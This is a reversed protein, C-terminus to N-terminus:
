TRCLLSEVPGGRLSEDVGGMSEPLMAACVAVATRSGGGAAAIQVLAGSTPHAKKLLMNASPIGTRAFSKECDQSSPGRMNGELYALGPCRSCSGAHNCGSCVPLDRLTISRVENLQASYRWIDMFKQRRVNGSPWPFQVCPFVDGYPSIYCATHGASCPLGDLVEGSVAKPPACLADVDGVLDPNHFVDRLQPMGLGLRLVARNGDMMPTITPDITYEAGLEKALAQVGPSDDLNPMMLVNAIKVKVGCSLLRRIGALSKTLSGPLLTIADHVEPRHSYISVQVDQVALDRLRRAEKDGLMFANTKVKVCFMLSRAYEVIDFFDMRMFVEGGSLTLFFVGAEVLQDLLGRIEGTTMEGHDHHDLYCHICRENCRYTVDLQVSLPVGRDLARQGIEEMLSMARRREGANSSTIRGGSVVKREHL